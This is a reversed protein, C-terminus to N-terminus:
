GRQKYIKQQCVAILSLGGVCIGRKKLGRLVRYDINLCQKFIKTIINNEAYKWTGLNKTKNKTIIRGLILTFYAYFCDKIYYDAMELTKNLTKINYRRFHRLEVDHLSFLKQFAPVTILLITNDYLYRNIEKLFFVDDEIHEIIDMLLVFDFKKMKIQEYSNVYNGGGKCINEKAYIDIGWFETIEPFTELMKEDFYGDGCGIDLVKGHIEIKKLENLIMETRALEWPHRYPLDTKESLDM